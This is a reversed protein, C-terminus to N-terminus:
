YRSDFYSIYSNILIIFLYLTPLNLGDHLRWVISIIYAKGVAEFKVREKNPKRELRYKEM